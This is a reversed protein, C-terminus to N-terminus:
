PRPAPEAEVHVQKGRFGHNEFLARYRERAAPDLFGHDVVVPERDKLLEGLECRM